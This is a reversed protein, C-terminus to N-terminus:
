LALLKRVAGWVSRIAEVAQGSGFATVPKGKVMAETVLPDFPIRGVLPIGREWCFEEIAETGRPSLDHKNVVVATRVRFHEAVQLIRDLDHAGAVTPETVMLALDVGGVASIVPCGIGPPGDIIVLPRNEDQALHRAKQRVVTVLKGSNEQAPHLRAHVLPGYPTDSVFWEGSERDEMRIADEPCQYYCAACGECALPDVSYSYRFAERGPELIADFRCVAHCVGCATCSEPDIVAVKGGIFREREKVRASLVLELNAADVDADALVVPLEQSALHAFAATLSTKGTGGKGSLIVLQKM